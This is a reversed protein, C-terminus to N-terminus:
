RYTIKLEACRVGSRLQFTFLATGGTRDSSQVRSKGHRPLLFRRSVLRHSAFHSLLGSGVWGATGVTAQPRLIWGERSRASNSPRM